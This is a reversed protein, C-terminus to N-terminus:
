TLQDRFEEFGQVRDPSGCFCLCVFGFLRFCGLSVMLYILSEQRDAAQGLTKGEGEPVGQPRWIPFLSQLSMQM